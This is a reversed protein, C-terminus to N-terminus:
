LMQCHVRVQQLSIKRRTGCERWHMMSEWWSTCLSEWICCRRQMKMLVALSSNSSLVFINRCEYIKSISNGIGYHLCYYHMEDHHYCLILAICPCLIFVNKNLGLVGGAVHRKGWRCRGILGQVTFAVSSKVYYSITLWVAEGAESLSLRMIRLAKICVAVM